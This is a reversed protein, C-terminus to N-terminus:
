VTVTVPVLLPWDRVAVTVTVTVSKARLALGLVTCNVVPPVAAEVIVTVPILPKEPITVRVDATEGAPRV